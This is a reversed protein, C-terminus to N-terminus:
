DLVVLTRIIFPFNAGLCVGLSFVVHVYFCLYLSTEILWHVGFVTLLGCSAPLPAHPLNEKVVRLPFGVQGGQDQVQLRLIIVCHM